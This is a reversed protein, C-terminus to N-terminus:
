ACHAFEQHAFRDGECVPPGDGEFSEVVRDPEELYGEALKVLQVEDSWRSVTRALRALELVDTDACHIYFAILRRRAHAEDVASYTDRLLEKAVWAASVEGDPDGARLLTAMWWFRDETLREYGTLLVRRARYLPDTRRGRHGLTQQQVRCRTDDIARNALRVAHFHDVVLTAGELHEELAKRYGAAPDL